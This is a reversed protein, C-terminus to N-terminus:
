ELNKEKRFKDDLVKYYHIATGNYSSFNIFEKEVMDIQRKFEDYSEDAFTTKPLMISIAKFGLFEKGSVPDVIPAPQFKEWEIDTKIHRSASQAIKSEHGILHERSGIGLQESLKVMTKLIKAQMAEDPDSPLEIGVHINEGDNITQTRFGNVRSLYSLERANTELADLFDERPMGLPFWVTTPKYTFVEVGSYINKKGQQEAYRLIPTGHALMSDAGYASDRYNMIGMNDLLDICFEVAPKREGNFSVIGIAEGTFPDKASWWFPVDVGYVMDSNERIRRQCEVNLEMFEELMKERREPDHWGIILYPENDFHVGDYREEPEVRNNYDIVADVIALPVFHFPKQAFEPYGDLAEVKIGRAHAKRIFARLKDEDRLVIKFAEPKGEEILRDFDISPEYRAPVQLWIRNVNERECFEFLRTQSDNFNNLIDYVTWAWAVRKPIARQEDNGTKSKLDAAVTEPNAVDKSTKFAVDDIYVTYEGPYAFDFTIGGLESLNLNRVEALPVLVESWTTKVGGPLFRDVPGISASDDLGIWRKDALKIVFKEGGKEGKVWFSLYEYGYANLFNKKDARFDFLHLWAGCFGVNAKKVSIKLSKGAEGRYVDETPGVIASSPIKEFKNYYGGLNNQNGRNFDDVLLLGLTSQAIATM